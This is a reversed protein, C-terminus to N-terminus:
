LQAQLRMCSCATQYSFICNAKVWAIFKGQREQDDREEWLTKGMNWLRTLNRGGEKIFVGYESNLTKARSTSEKSM